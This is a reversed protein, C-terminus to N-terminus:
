SAFIVETSAKALQENQSYGSLDVKDLKKLYADLQAVSKKLAKYDVKGNLVHKKLLLDWSGHLGTSQAASLFSVMLLIIVSVMVIKKM